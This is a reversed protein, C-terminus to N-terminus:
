GVPLTITFESGEGEKSAVTISGGHGKVVMDYTLSLGLGTGEGTPKTTFFPQMIKEKIADPIGVGNDKVKIVVKGNEVYTGVSVEPKYGEVATKQKQNVAYFANNFLNLLIRGIGQPIVNIQPLKEDLHTVMDANFSKDKSRLGHYSLRLYEDALANINTPEKAGSSSQSHQLMGKVIADARKGHHRIKELNQKLDAGIAQAEAIDGKALEEDMEDVLEASVESFNNVFNLPNQIEHAIGATLEGLSAMKESQILQTQTTKLQSLASEVQQKQTQLQQNAKAKQKNNRWQLLAIVLITFVVGLLVNMKLRTSAQEQQKVLEQQQLQDNFALNDAEREKQRSYLRDKLSITLKLYKLTSDAIKQKEYINALMSYAGLVAIPYVRGWKQAITKKAYYIASDTKRENLYVGSMGNYADLIDIQYKSQATALSVTRRFFQLALQDSGKKGYAEGFVYMLGSWNKGFDSAYAKKAYFLASDPQDNKAFVSSIMGDMPKRDIHSTAALKFAQRFYSLSANYNGQERYCMAINIYSDAIGSHDNLKKWLALQKYGYYLGQPYNGITTSAGCMQGESFAIGHQFNLKQALQLSQQAYFLSSDAFSWTYYYALDDLLYVKNTDEKAVKIAQKLSDAYKNQAYTKTVMLLLLLIFLKKM